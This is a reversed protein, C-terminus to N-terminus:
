EMKSEFISIKDFKLNRTNKNKGKDKVNQLNFHM